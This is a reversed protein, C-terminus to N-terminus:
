DTNLGFEKRKIKIERNITYVYDRLTARPDGKDYVVKRFANSIHRKLFYSGPVQPVGKGWQMQESLVTYMEPEWAIKSFADINATAYRASEGLISEMENGYTLQVDASTWWKLYEWSENVNKSNSLIVANTGSLSNSRDITGDEKLTGPIMTFSWLGKIEPASVILNNFNSFNEVVLPYEGTRFRNVFNFTVPLNYNVYLNTWAKFASVGDASDLDCATGNNRYIAAGRQYLLSYFADEAMAVVNNINTGTNQMGTSPLAFNMNNKLLIPIVSIVDQWTQPISIGLKDMIDKRYFLVNFTQTEPLAYVKDNFTVPVLREAMFRSSVDQYDSFQTLDLVAGRIAYNIPEEIQNELAVDPGIGASSAPLLTNKSVLELKVGIEKKSSFDSEILKKLVQVQDRGSFMWVRINKNYYGQGGINSYDLYFSKFFLKVEYILQEFFGSNVSPLDSDDTSAIAIYDVELPQQRINNIWVAMSGLNTKFYNFNRPIIDPDGYMQNLQRILTQLTSITQGKEGATYSVFWDAIEQLEDALRKMREIEDPIMEDLYYDRMTDPTSGTILLITTYIENLQNLIKSAQQIRSSMEGLNVEMKLQHKGKELYFKYAYEGNGLSDLVWDKSYGFTYQSLEKFPIEDDIYIARNVLIGRTINQRYKMKITYLGTKPVTFNWVIFQGPEKWQNGGIVNLKEGAGSTANTASIAPGTRDVYSYITPSSKLAASEGEILITDSKADTYGASQYDSEVTKYTPIKPLPTVELSGITLPENLSEITLANNGKEFYMLLPQDYYGEADKVYTTQWEKAEIQSPRVENGGADIKGEDEPDNKYIRSFVVGDLEDYQLKGNILIRRDIATGRDKEAVFSIKLTYLGAEPIQTNFTVRSKSSTFLSPEESGLYENQIKCDGNECNFESLDIEITNDPKPSNQHEKLFAEYSNGSLSSESLLIDAKAGTKFYPMVATMICFCGIWAIIRNVLIKMLM